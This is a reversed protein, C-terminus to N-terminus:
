TYAAHKHVILHRLLESPSDFNGHLLLTGVSDAGCLKVKWCWTHQIEVQFDMVVIISVHSEHCIERRTTGGSAAFVLAGMLCCSDILRILFFINKMWTHINDNEVIESIHLFRSLTSYCPTLPDNRTKTPMSEVGSGERCDVERVKFCLTTISHNYNFHEGPKLGAAAEAVSSFLCLSDHQYDLLAEALSNGFRMVFTFVCHQLHV